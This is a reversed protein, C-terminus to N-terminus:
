SASSLPLIVNLIMGGIFLYTSNLAGLVELISKKLLVAWKRMFVSQNKPEESDILMTFDLDTPIETGFMETLM